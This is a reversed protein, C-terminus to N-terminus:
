RCCSSPSTARRCCHGQRATPIAAALGAGTLVDNLSRGLPLLLTVPTASQCWSEVLSTLAASEYTFLSVRLEHEQKPPLGLSAWYAALGAEDQQWRERDSILGRECM